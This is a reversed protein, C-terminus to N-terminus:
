KLSHLGVRNGECDQFIAFYGLDPAIQTKPVVVAGGAKPVRNLVTSLDNGANLYVVSGGVTPQYGNGAVIAGGVGGGQQDHLLIGMRNPGMPMEPMEYDFIAQYFEKAKDFNSVPIEFWSLANKWTEM